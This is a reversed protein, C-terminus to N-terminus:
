VPYQGKSSYRKHFRYYMVNETCCKQQHRKAKGLFGKGIGCLRADPVYAADDKRHEIGFVAEREFFHLHLLFANVNLAVFAIRHYFASVQEAIGRAFWEAEFHAIRNITNVITAFNVAVF